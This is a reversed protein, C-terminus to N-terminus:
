VISKKVHALTQASCASLENESVANKINQM